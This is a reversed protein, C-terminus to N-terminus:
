FGIGAQKYQIKRELKKPLLINEALGKLQTPKHFCKQEQDISYIM